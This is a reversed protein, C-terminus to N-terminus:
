HLSCDLTDIKIWDKNWSDYTKLSEISNLLEQKHEIFFKKIMKAIEMFEISIEASSIKAEKMFSPANIPLIFSNIVELVKREFGAWTEATKKIFNFFYEEGPFEFIVLLHLNGFDLRVCHTQKVLNILRYEM